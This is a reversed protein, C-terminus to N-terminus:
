TQAYIKLLLMLLCLIYLYGLTKLTYTSKLKKNAHILRKMLFFIFFLFYITGIVENVRSSLYQRIIFFAYKNHFTYYVYLYCMELFIIKIEFFLILPFDLHEM